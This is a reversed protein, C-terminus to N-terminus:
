RFCILDDRYVFSADLGPLGKGSSLLTFTGAFQKACLQLAMQNLRPTLGETSSIVEDVAIDIQSDYPYDRLLSYVQFAASESAGVGLFARVLLLLAAEREPPKPLALYRVLTTRAAEYQQGFICLRGLSLLEEPNDSFGGRVLLLTQCEHAARIEGIRLAIKDSDTLDDPQSRLENFPQMANAFAERPSLSPKVNQGRLHAIGFFFLFAVCTVIVASPYNSLYTKSCRSFQQQFYSM